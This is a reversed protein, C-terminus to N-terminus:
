PSEFGLGRAHWPSHQRENDDCVLWHYGTRGLAARSMSPVVTLDRDLPHQSRLPNVLGCAPEIASKRHDSLGATITVSLSPYSCPATVPMVGFASDARRIESREVDVADRM